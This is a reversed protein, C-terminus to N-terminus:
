FGFVPNGSVVVYLGFVGAAVALASLPRLPRLPRLPASYFFDAAKAAPSRKRTTRM